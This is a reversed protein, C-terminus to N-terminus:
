NDIKYSGYYVEPKKKWSYMGNDSDDVIWAYYDRKDQKFSLRLYYDSVADPDLKKGKVKLYVVKAKKKPITISTGKKLQLKRITKETYRDLVLGNKGYFVMPVKSLNQIKIKMLKKDADYRVIWARFNPTSRNVKVTCALDYTKNNSVTKARITCKGYGVATIRGQKNVKAVKSNSTSWTVSSVANEVANYVKDGASLTLSKYNLTPAPVFQTVKVHMTDYSGDQATVTITSEGIAIGKVTITPPTTNNNFSVTAYGPNSSRASAIKISRNTGDSPKVSVTETTGKMVQLNDPINIGSAGSVSFRLTFSQNGTHYAGFSYTGSNMVASLFYHSLNQQNTPVALYVKQKTSVNQLVYTMGKNIYYYQNNGSIDIQISVTSRVPLTFQNSWGGGYQNPFKVTTASYLRYDAMAHVSIALVLLVTMLLVRRLLKKMIM